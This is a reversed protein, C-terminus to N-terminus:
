PQPEEQAFAAEVVTLFQQRQAAGAAAGAAWAAPRRRADRTRLYDQVVAPANWCDLVQAACWRAFTWLLETADVSALIRREQAVLKDPPTGHEQMAGALEVRHLRAGPAYQLADFPHLSAHLGAECPVLPGDHILWVGRAPLPRGDRLSPGTFHYALTM